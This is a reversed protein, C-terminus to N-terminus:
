ESLTLSGDLGSPPPSHAPTLESGSPSRPTESMSKKLSEFETITAIWLQWALSPTCNEIGFQSLRGALDQLFEPTPMISGDNRRLNHKDECQECCLKVCLLDAQVAQEGASTRVRFQISGDSFVLTPKVPQQGTEM